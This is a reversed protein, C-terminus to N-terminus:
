QCLRKMRKAVHITSGLLRSVVAASPLKPSRIGGASCQSAVRQASRQLKTSSNMQRQVAHTRMGAVPVFDWFLILRPTGSCLRPVCLLSPYTSCLEYEANVESIRWKDDPM